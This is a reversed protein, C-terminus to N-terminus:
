AMVEMDPGDTGRCGWCMRAGDSEFGTAPERRPCRPETVARHDYRKRLAARRRAGVKHRRRDAYATLGAAVTAGACIAASAGFDSLQGVTLTLVTYDGSVVAVFLWAVRLRNM